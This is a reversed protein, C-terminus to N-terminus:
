ETNIKKIRYFQNLLEEFIFFQNETITGERIKIVLSVLNQVLKKPHGTRDTLQRVFSEDLTHTPLHYHLRIYEMLYSIRKRAMNLHDSRSNYYLQGLTEAFEVSSNKMPDLIPIIRQKRKAEFIFFLLIAILSLYIAARLAPEALMVRLISSSQLRGVQYFEVQTVPEGAPLMSLIGASYGASTSDLLYYNSLLLPNSHLYLKGRGVPYARLVDREKENVSLSTFGISDAGAFQHPSGIAEVRYTKKPFGKKEFRLETRAKGLLDDRNQQWNGLVEFSYEIEVGLSDKFVQGLWGASVLVQHGQRLYHMLAEWDNEDPDFRNAVILLNGFDHQQLSDSIVMEYLSRYESQVENGGNIDELVARTVYGGYADKDKEHWTPMWRKAPQTTMALFIIFGLAVSLIIINQRRGKM